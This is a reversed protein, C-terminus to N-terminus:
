LPGIHPPELFPFSQFEACDVVVADPGSEVYSAFDKSVMGKLRHTWLCSVVPSTLWYKTSSYGLTELSSLPLLGEKVQLLGTEALRSWATMQALMRSWDDASFDSTQIDSRKLMARLMAPDRAIEGWMEATAIGIQQIASARAAITNQRIEYAVFILSAILGVGGLFEFTKSVSIRTKM